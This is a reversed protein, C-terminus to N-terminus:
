IRPIIADSADSERAKLHLRRVSLYYDTYGTVSLHAVSIGQRYRATHPLTYKYTCTDLYTAM